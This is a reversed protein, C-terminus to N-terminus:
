EYLHDYKGSSKNENNLSSDKIQPGARSPHNAKFQIANRIWTRWAITWDIFLNGKARNHDLFNQTETLIDTSLGQENAWKKMEETIEFKEPVPIKKKLFKKKEKNKNLDSSSFSSQLANCISDMHLASADQTEKGWRKEAAKKRSESFERQKNFTRLLGQQIWRGNELKWARFIQRKVREWDSPDGLWKKLVEDDDPLTCPDEQQWAICMLHVHMGRADWDMLMVKDDGLWQKVYLQFAPSKPNM